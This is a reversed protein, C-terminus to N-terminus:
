THPLSAPFRGAAHSLSHTLARTPVLYFSLPLQPDQAWLQKVQQPTFSLAQVPTEATTSATRPCDTLFAMEGFSSFPDLRALDQPPQDGATYVIRVWEELILYMTEDADGQTVIVTGPPFTRETAIARLTALATHTIHWQLEL